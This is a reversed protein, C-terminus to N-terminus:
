KAGKGKLVAGFTKFLIKADTAFSQDRVYKLDLHMWEDFGVESRGSIQWYCTIGPKVALRVWEWDDYKEVEHPLPPRPGVLSMDGKLVNLFQPMEDISSRRLFNGHKIIRPDDSIKFAPGDIENKDQLVDLKNEADPVMTRIKYMIFTKGNKGVRKQKFIVPGDPSVAKVMIAAVLMFPSGLVLGVIGGLIDFFRKTIGWAPNTNPSLQLTIMRQDGVQEDTMKRPYFSDFSPIVSIRVNCRSATSIMRGIADYKLRESALLVETAAGSMLIEHYLETSGLYNSIESNERYAVYGVYEFGYHASKEAAVTELYFKEANEGSGVLLLKHIGIGRKRYKAIVKRWIWRELIVSLSALGFFLLLMSRSMMDLHMLFLIAFVVITVIVNSFIIREVEFSFPRFRRSSYLGTVLYVIVSSIIVIGALSMSWEPPYLKMGIAVRVVQVMVYSALLAVVDCVCTIIWLNKTEDSYAREALTM